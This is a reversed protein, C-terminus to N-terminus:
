DTTKDGIIVEVSRILGSFLEEDVFNNLNIWGCDVEIFISELTSPREEAKRIGVFICNVLVKDVNFSFLEWDIEVSFCCVTSSYGRVGGGGIWFRLDFESCGLRWEYENGSQDTGGVLSNDGVDKDGSSENTSSSILILWIDDIM